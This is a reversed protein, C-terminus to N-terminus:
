TVLHNLYYKEYELNNLTRTGRDNRYRLNILLGSGEYYNFRLTGDGAFIFDNEEM